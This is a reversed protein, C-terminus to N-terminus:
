NILQMLNICWAPLLELFQYDLNCFDVNSQTLYITTTTLKGNM